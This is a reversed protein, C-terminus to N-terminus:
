LTDSPPPTPAKARTLLEAFAKSPSSTETRAPLESPDIEALMTVSQDGGGLLFVRKGARVLFVARRADLMTRDIVELGRSNASGLTRQSVWRLVVWATVCVALLSLLTQLLAVGYGTTAPPLQPQIM